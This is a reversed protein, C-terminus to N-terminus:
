VYKIEAVKINFILSATHQNATADQHSLKMESNWTRLRGQNFLPLNFHVSNM